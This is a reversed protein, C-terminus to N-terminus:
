SKRGFIIFVIALGAAVLGLVTWNINDLFSGSDSAGPSVVTTGGGLSGGAVSVPISASGDALASLIKDAIPDTSNPEITITGGNNASASINTSQNADTNDSAGSELYKGSAGVGISGSGIAQSNEAAVPSSAGSTTGTTTHSSSPGQSSISQRCRPEQFLRRREFM